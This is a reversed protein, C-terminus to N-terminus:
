ATQQHGSYSRYAVFLLGLIIAAVAFPAIDSLEVGASGEVSGTGPGTPPPPPNPPTTGGLLRALMAADVARQFVQPVVAYGVAGVLVTPVIWRVPPRLTPRNRKLHDPM